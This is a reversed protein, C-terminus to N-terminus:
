LTSISLRQDESLKMVLRWIYLKLFYNAHLKFHMWMRCKKSQLASPYIVLLTKGAPPVCTHGCGNSCCKLNDECDSDEMCMEVCAGFLEDSTPCMGPKPASLISYHYYYVDIAWNSILDASM